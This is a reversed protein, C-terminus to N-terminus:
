GACTVEDAKTVKGGESGSGRKKGKAVVISDDIGQYDKGVELRVSFAGSDKVLKAGAAFAVTRASDKQAPPYVVRTRGRVSASSQDGVGFGAMQLSASVNALRKGPARVDVWIDAPAVTLKKGDPGVSPPAPWPTDDIMARWLSAAKATDPDVNAGDARYVFPMTTFTVKEPTINRASLALDTMQSLGDLSQDVTLAKTATDVVSYLKAPNLLMGTDTAKRIASSLFAQQREIRGIDSGDGIYKRARVFALADEGSVVSKGAPLDLKAAPDSIANNLCVEVGGLADVVQKFGQFDVV